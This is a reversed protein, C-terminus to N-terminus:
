DLWQKVGMYIVFTLVAVAALLGILSAITRSGSNTVYGDGCYTYSVVTANAMSAGLTSSNIFRIDGQTQTCAALNTGATTNVVYDTNAALLTGNAFMVTVGSLACDSTDSLRWNGIIFPCGNALNFYHTGNISTGTRAAALSLSENVRNTKTTMQTQSSFVAQLIVLAIVIGMVLVVIGGVGLQGKKNKM